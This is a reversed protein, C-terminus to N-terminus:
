LIWESQFGDRDAWFNALCTMMSEGPLGRLHQALAFLSEQAAVACMRSSSEGGSGGGIAAAADHRIQFLVFEEITM